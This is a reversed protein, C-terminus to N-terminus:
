KADSASLRTRGKLRRKALVKRGKSTKTRNRFGSVKARRKKNPQYTRKMTFYIIYLIIITDM